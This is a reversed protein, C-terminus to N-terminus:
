IGLLTAAQQATIAHGAKTPHIWDWFLYQGASQCQFPAVGAMICADQVSSLWFESGNSVIEDTAQFVDFLTVSARPELQFNAM